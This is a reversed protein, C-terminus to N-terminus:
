RVAAFRSSAFRVRALRPPAFRRSALRFSVCKFITSHTRNPLALGTLGGTTKVRRGTISVALENESKRPQRHLARIAPAFVRGIRGKAFLAPALKLQKTRGAFCGYTCARNQLFHPALRLALEIPESTSAV